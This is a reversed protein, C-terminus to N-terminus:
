SQNIKGLINKLNSIKRNTYICMFNSVKFLNSKDAALTEEEQQIEKSIINKLLTKDIVGLNLNNIYCADGLEARMCIEIKDLIIFAIDEDQASRTKENMYNKVRWRFEDIAQYVEQSIYLKTETLTIELQQLDNVILEKKPSYVESKWWDKDEWLEIYKFRINIIKKYIDNYIKHKKNTYLTIELLKCQNEFKARETIIQVKKGIYNNIFAGIVSASIVSMVIQQIWFNIDM